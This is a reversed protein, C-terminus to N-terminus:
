APRYEVFNIKTEGYIKEHTVHFSPPLADNFNKEAEIVCLAGVSLWGGEHLSALCTAILGKNYPPDLFALFAAKTDNPRQPLQTADNLLFRSQGEFGLTRANEKALDLSGRVADIFTVNAVSQSLAELGLAGSGCFCDLAHIDDLVLRSRLANFIAGRIKDSTPRIDLGEPAILKRGRASGSIIRM